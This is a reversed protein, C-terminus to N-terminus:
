TLHGIKRPGLSQPSSEHTLSKNLPHEWFVGALSQPFLVLLSSALLLIRDWAYIGLAEAQDQTPGPVPAECHTRGWYLATLPTGGPEICSVPAPPTPPVITGSGSLGGCGTVPASAPLLLACLSLFSLWFHSLSELPDLLARGVYTM